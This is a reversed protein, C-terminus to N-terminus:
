ICNLASTTTNFCAEMKVRVVAVVLEESAVAGKVKSMVGFGDASSPACEGDM